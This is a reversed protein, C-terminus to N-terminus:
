IHYELGLEKLVEKMICRDCSAEDECNECDSDKVLRYEAAHIKDSLVEEVSGSLPTSTSATTMGSYGERVRKVICDVCELLESQNACDECGLNTKKPTSITLSFSEM